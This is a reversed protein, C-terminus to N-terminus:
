SLSILGQYSVQIILKAKCVSEAVLMADLLSIKLLLLLSHLVLKFKTICIIVDQHTVKITNGLFQKSENKEQSELSGDKYTIFTIRFPWWIQGRVRFAGSTIM